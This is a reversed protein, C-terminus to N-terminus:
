GANFSIRQWFSAYWRRGGFSYNM